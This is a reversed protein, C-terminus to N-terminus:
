RGAGRHAERALAIAKDAFEEATDALAAADSYDAEAAESKAKTLHETAMYYEYPAYKEAGLEEAEALKSSASNADIAYVTSGCSAGFLVFAGLAALAAARVPLSLRAPARPDTSRVAATSRDASPPRRSCLSAKRNPETVLPTLPNEHIV